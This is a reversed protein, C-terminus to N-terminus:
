VRFFIEDQRGMIQFPQAHLEFQAPHHGQKGPFVGMALGHDHAAHGTVVAEPGFDDALKALQPYFVLSNTSLAMIGSMRSM